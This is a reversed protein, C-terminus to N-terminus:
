IHKIIGGEVRQTAGNIGSALDSCLFATVSAVEEPQLFRQILSTPEYEKFYSTVADEMSLGKSKAFGEMYSEVGSTWTPGPLVSNVTVGTVGKTVEALGRAAAIQAAKSVSYPIMQPLTRLGAESSVFIIRGAKSNLMQPLYHRSLRIGSMLNVNHYNLWEDDTVDMFDKVEFIGVNNILISVQPTIKRELREKEVLDVFDKVGESTSVNGPVPITLNSSSMTITSNIKDCAKQCSEISRGNVVVHCGSVVLQQAIAFGIGSTSGTVIVLKGKLGPLPSVTSSSSSAM